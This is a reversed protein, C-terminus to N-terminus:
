NNSEANIWFNIHNGGVYYSAYCWIQITSNNIHFYYMPNIKLLPQIDMASYYPDYIYEEYNPLIIPLSEINIINKNYYCEILLTLINDNNSLNISNIIINSM